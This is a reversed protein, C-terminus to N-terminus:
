MGYPQAALRRARGYKRWIRWKIQATKQKRAGPFGIGALFVATKQVIHLFEHPVPWKKANEGQRKRPIITDYDPRSFVIM